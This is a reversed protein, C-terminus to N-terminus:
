SESWVSLGAAAARRSQADIWLVARAVCAGMAAVLAIEM